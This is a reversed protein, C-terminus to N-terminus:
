EIIVMKKTATKERTDLRYHFVGSANLESKSINIENYGATGNINKVLMVQGAINFITLKATQEDPLNFGIRTSNEAPNPINQYLTFEGAAPSNIGTKSANLNNTSVGTTTVFFSCSSKNGCADTAIYTEYIKANPEFPYGSYYGSTRMVNLGSSNCSGDVSSFMGIENWTIVTGYKDTSVVTIDKPCTVTIATSTYDGRCSCDSRVRDNVTNPNGDDCSAGFNKLLNPCNTQNNLDCKPYNEGLGLDIYVLNAGGGILKLGTGSYIICPILDNDFYLYKLGNPLPPLSTIQNIFCVLQLLGNPLTPLSTLQNNYCYLSILGNPLTPLSTLQNNYCYFTKLGTPLTPMSTLQNNHCFLVQLGTFGELGTLDLISKNVVSLMTLNRAAPQILEGTGDGNITICTNCFSKIGSAFNKDPVHQAKLFPMGIFFIFICSLVCSGTCKSFITKYNSTTMPLFNLFM